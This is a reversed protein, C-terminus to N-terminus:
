RWHGKRSICARSTPGARSAGARLDDVATAHELRQLLVRVHDLVEVHRLVLRQRDLLDKLENTALRVDGVEEWVVLVEWLRGGLAEQAGLNGWTPALLVGFLGM